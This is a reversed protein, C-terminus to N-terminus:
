LTINIKVNKLSVPCAAIHCCRIIEKMWPKKVCIRFQAHTHTDAQEHMHLRVSSNMVRTIDQTSVGEGDKTVTETTVHAVLRKWHPLPRQMLLTQCQSPSLSQPSMDSSFFQRLHQRQVLPQRNNSFHRQSTCVSYQGVSESFFELLLLCILWCCLCLSSMGIIASLILLLFFFPLLWFVQM